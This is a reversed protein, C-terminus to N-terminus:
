CNISFLSQLHTVKPYVFEVERFYIAINVFLHFDCKTKTQTGVTGFTQSSLPSPHM